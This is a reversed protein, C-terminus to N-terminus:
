QAKRIELRWDAADADMAAAELHTQSRGPLLEYRWDMIPRIPAGDDEFFIFRYQVPVAEDLRPRVPVIVRMPTGQLDAGRVIPDSFSLDKGIVQAATIQPYDEIPEFRPQAPMKDGQCGALLLGSLLVACLAYRTRM